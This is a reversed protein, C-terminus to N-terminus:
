RAAPADLDLTPPHTVRDAVAVGLVVALTIVGLVLGTVHPGLPVLALLVVVAVIRPWSALRWVIAKFVAHGALFLATGGLAFWTASGHAHHGPEHLLREDAAATVIIGAVILPHVFHFANRALRGPDASAEIERASDEASRDFYVWWLAVAGAFALAFAVIDETAGHYLNAREGIIVVSEGLAILVFAQCREAFHGGSITWDATDSAGVRPLWFGSAAGCLDVAVAVAWLGARVGTNPVCAGVIVVAGTVASWPLVRVFVMQLVDGRLAWIEFLARGVQVAVYAGALLLAQHGAYAEPIQSALVLSAAMVVLLMLRVSSRAPDLYNLSWTTYVWVQWVMALVVAAKLAGVPSPHTLLLHSLQTVAFVYVLDFFLEVTTVRGAHEGHRVRSTSSMASLM